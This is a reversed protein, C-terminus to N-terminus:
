VARSLLLGALFGLAVAAVRGYTLIASQGTGDSRLDRVMLIKPRHPELDALRRLDVQTVPDDFLVTRDSM